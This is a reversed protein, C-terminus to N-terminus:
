ASAHRPRVVRLGVAALAGAAPVFFDPAQLLWLTESSLACWLVPVTMLWGGRRSLALYALTAVATPDPM